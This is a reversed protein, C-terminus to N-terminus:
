ASFSVDFKFTVLIFEGDTRSQFEGDVEAEIARM